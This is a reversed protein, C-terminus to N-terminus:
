PNSAKEAANEAAKTIEKEVEEAADWLKKIEASRAMMVGYTYQRSPLVPKPLNENTM